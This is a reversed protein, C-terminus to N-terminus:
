RSKRERILKYDCVDGGTCGSAPDASHYHSSFYPEGCDVIQWGDRGLEEEQDKCRQCEAKDGSYELGSYDANILATCWAAPLTVEDEEFKSM